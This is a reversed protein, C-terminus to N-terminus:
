LKDADAMIKLTGENIMAAKTAELWRRFYDEGKIQLLYNKLQDMETDVDKVNIEEREKFAVIFYNGNIYFPKEPYPEKQSLVFLERALEASTGILPITSSPLFPGTQNLQLHEKTAIDKFHEGKKLRSVIEESKQRALDRSKAQVYKNRVENEVEEITPIYSPEIKQVKVIYFANEDSLVPTTEGEKMDFIYKEMDKIPLIDRRSVPPFTKIELKNERAYEEFNEEQYIIDNASRAAAAAMDLGKSLSLKDHIDDRVDAFPMIEGTSTMFESKYRNYYDEISEEPVALTGAYDKGSFALAAIQITEPMRFIEEHERLYQKLEDDTPNITGTFLTEPIKIFNINIKENQIRYIDYIEQDSVKVGERILRELKEIKLVKKQTLEFDEPSMKSYRLMRHYLDPDFVGDRQFLPYSYLSARIEQESVNLDYEEAKALIVAQNIIRDLAQQKLNLSSLIEDTLNEKYQERYFELLRTYENRFDHYGIARDNVIAMTEAQRGSRLSGFYFIFVIIIIGLLAQVFWSRAHKRMLRLMSYYEKRTTDFRNNVGIFVHFTYTTYDGRFQLIKKSIRQNPFIFATYSVRTFFHPPYLM